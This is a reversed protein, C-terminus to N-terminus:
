IIPLVNKTKVSNMLSFGRKCDESSVEFTTCIDSLHALIAFQKDKLEFQVFDDFTQILGCKIKQSVLFRFDCYQTTIDRCAEQSVEFFRQYKIILNGIQSEGFDFSTM